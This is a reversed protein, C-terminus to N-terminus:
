ENATLQDAFQQLTADVANKYADLIKEDYCCFIIKQLVFNDKTKNSSQQQTNTINNDNHNKNKENNNNNDNNDNSQNNNIKFYYNLLWEVTAQIATISAKNIPLMHSGTSISCFCISQIQNEVCLNLCSHYCKKLMEYDSKTPGVTHIVYKCPLNYGKTLKADGIECKDYKEFCEKQWVESRVEWQSVWM